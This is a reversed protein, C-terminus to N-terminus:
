RNNHSRKKCHILSWRTLEVSQIIRVRSNSEIFRGSNVATYEGLWQVLRNDRACPLSLLFEQPATMSALGKDRSTELDDVVLIKPQLSIFILCYSHYFLVGNRPTNTVKLIRYYVVPRRFVFTLSVIVNFLAGHFRYTLVWGTLSSACSIWLGNCRCTCMHHAAGQGLVRSVLLSTKEVRLRNFCVFLCVFLCPQAVHSFIELRTEMHFASLQPRYDFCYSWIFRCELVM